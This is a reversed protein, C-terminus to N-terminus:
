LFWMQNEWISASHIWWSASMHTLLILPLGM